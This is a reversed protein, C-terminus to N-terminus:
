VERHQKEQKEVVFAEELTPHFDNSRWKTLALFTVFM